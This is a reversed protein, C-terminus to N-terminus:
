VDIVTEAVWNGDDDQYVRLATYTAGKIEVAPEHRAVDIAEGWARARLRDGDIDVAFRVFLMKRTAMEYILANLWDVLLLEPNPAECQLEVEESANVYRPDVMAATMALAAQEYAGALTPAIGRVGIDAGHDFHEWRSPSSDMDAQLRRGHAPQALLFYFLHRSNGANVRTL